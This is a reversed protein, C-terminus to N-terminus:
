RPLSPRRRARMRRGPGELEGCEVGVGCDGSPTEEFDHYLNDTANPGCLYVGPATSRNAKPM